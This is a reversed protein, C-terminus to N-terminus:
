LIAWRDEEQPDVWRKQGHCPKGSINLFSQAFNKRALHSKVKSSGGQM